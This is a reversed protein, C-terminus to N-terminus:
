MNIKNKWEEYWQRKVEKLINMFKNLVGLNRLGGLMQHPYSLKKTYHGRPDIVM